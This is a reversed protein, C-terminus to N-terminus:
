NKNRPNHHPMKNRTMIEQLKVIKHVIRREMRIIRQMEMKIRVLQPCLHHRIQNALHNSLAILIMRTLFISTRQHMLDIKCIQTFLKLQRIITSKMSLKCRKIRTCLQHKDNQKLNKSALKQNKRAKFRKKLKGIKKM